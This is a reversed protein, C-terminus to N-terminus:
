AFAAYNGNFFYQEKIFSPENWDLSLIAKMSSLLDRYNNPKIFFLDAGMEYAKEISPKHTASSFIIVPVNELVQDSRIAKLCELGSKCPMYLDLFIFDPVYHRLLDLLEKGNDAISLNIAPAIQLLADKFLEHDDPDDDALILSQFLYHKM